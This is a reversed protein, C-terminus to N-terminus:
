SAGPVFLAPTDKLVRRTDNHMFVSLANSRGEALDNLVKQVLQAFLEAWNEGHAEAMGQDWTNKFLDWASTQAASLEAARRLRELVELRAKQHQQTGAKKRGKGLMDLSNVNVGEMAAVVAEASRQETRAKRLKAVADKFEQKVRM